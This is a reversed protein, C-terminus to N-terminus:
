PNIRNNNVKSIIINKRKLRKMLSILHLKKQSNIIMMKGSKHCQMLITVVKSKSNSLYKILNQYNFEQHLCQNILLM